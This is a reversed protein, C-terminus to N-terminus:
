VHSQFALMVNFLDTLAIHDVENLGPHSVVRKWSGQGVFDHTGWEPNM